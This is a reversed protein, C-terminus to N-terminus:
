QVSKEIGTSLTYPPTWGLEHRIKACDVTLSNALKDLEKSKRIASLAFRLLLIPVPFLNASKKLKKAIQRILEPTSIVEADSILYLGAAKESKLCTVIADILNEIYIFSKRNKIMSFPLPIGMKVLKVLNEFNGPANLGYVLPTRLIIIKMKSLTKLKEEALLKSQSYFNYPAPPDSETFSRDGSSEGNVGISSLFIFKNVGCLEAQQALHMTADVNTKIFEQLPDAAVEHMVHVRAALHIVVDIGNLIESWNTETDISEVHILKFDNESLLSKQVSRTTGFVEFNNAALHACLRQGIFGSAGTVLM